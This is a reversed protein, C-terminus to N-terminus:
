TLCILVNSCVGCYIQYGNLYIPDCFAPLLRYPESFRNIVNYLHFSVLQIPNWLWNTSFLDM